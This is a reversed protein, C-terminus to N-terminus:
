AWEVADDFFKEWPFGLVNAIKKAVTVSADRAGSEIQSYYCESIGAATAIDKMTRKSKLRVEKLWTRMYAGGKQCKPAAECKLIIESMISKQVELKDILKKQADITRDRIDITEKLTQIFEEYSENLQKSGDLTEEYERIRKEHEKCFSDFIIGCFSLVLLWMAKAQTGLSYHEPFWVTILLLISSYSGAVISFWKLVVRYVKIFKKLKEM